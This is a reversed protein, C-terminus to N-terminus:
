LLYSGILWGTIAGAINAIPDVVLRNRWTEPQHTLREERYSEVAEWVITGFLVITLIQWLSLHVFFWDLWAAIMLWYVFHPLIWWDVAERWKNM